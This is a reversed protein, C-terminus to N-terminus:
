YGAPTRHRSNLNHYIYVWAERRTLLSIISEHIYYISWYHPLYNWKCCVFIPFIYNSSESFIGHLFTINAYLYNINEGRDNTADARLSYWIEYYYYQQFKTYYVVAVVYGTDAHVLKLDIDWLDSQVIRQIDKALLDGRKTSSLPLSWKILDSVLESGHWTWYGEVYEQCGDKSSNLRTEKM